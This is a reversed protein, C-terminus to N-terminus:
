GALLVAEFADGIGSINFHSLAYTRANNGMSSRLTQSDFLQRAADTFGKIDDPEVVLGAETKAVIRAALNNTPVALLVPRGASLYALVKSPVSYVDADKELVAVLVDASGLADSLDEFPHFGMLDLNNFPLRSNEAHLWDAGLGRSAVVVRVGAENDFQRALAAILEPNHKMGMTGTYMFVFKDTYNRARAWRNSKPVVTIDDLPAWNEIVEIRSRDVHWNKLIPIFDDSICVM